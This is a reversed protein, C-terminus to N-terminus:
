KWKIVWMKKSKSDIETFSDEAASVDYIRQKGDERVVYHEAGDNNMVSVVQGLYDGNKTYVKYGFANSGSPVKIITTPNSSAKKVEDNNEKSVSYGDEASLEKQMIPSKQMGQVPTQIKGPAHEDCVNGGRQRDIIYAPQGCIVGGTESGAICKNTTITTAHGNTNIWLSKHTLIGRQNFSFGLAKWRWIYSWTEIGPGMYGESVYKAEGLIAKVDQKTSIGETFMEYNTQNIKSPLLVSSCGSHLMVVFILSVTIIVLKSM